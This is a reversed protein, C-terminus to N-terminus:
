KIIKILLIDNFIEFITKAKNINHQFNKSQKITWTTILDKFTDLNYITKSICPYYFNDTQNYTLFYELGTSDIIKKNSNLFLRYIQSDFSLEEISSIIEFVITKITRNEQSYDYVFVPFTLKNYGADRLHQIYIKEKEKRNTTM